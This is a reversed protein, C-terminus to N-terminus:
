GRLEILREGQELRRHTESWFPEFWAMSARNSRNGESDLDACSTCREASM